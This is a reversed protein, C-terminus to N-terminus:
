DPSSNPVESEVRQVDGVAHTVQKASITEHDAVLDCLLEVVILRAEHALHDVICDVELCGLFVTLVITRGPTSSSSSSAFRVYSPM